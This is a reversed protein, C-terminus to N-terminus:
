LVMIKVMLLFVSNMENLSFLVWAQLLSQLCGHQSYGSRWAWTLERGSAWLAQLHTHNCLDSPKSFYGLPPPSIDFWYLFISEQREPLSPPCPLPLLFLCIEPVTLSSLKISITVAPAATFLYGVHGLYSFGLYSPLRQSLADSPLCMLVM